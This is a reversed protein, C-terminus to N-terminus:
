VMKIINIILASKGDFTFTVSLVLITLIGIFVFKLISIIRQGADPEQMADISLLIIALIAFPVPDFYPTVSGPIVVEMGIALFIFVSLAWVSHRYLTHLFTLIEM